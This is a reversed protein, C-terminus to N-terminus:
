NQVRRGLVQRARFELSEIRACALHLHLWNAISIAFKVSANSETIAFDRFNRTWPQISLLTSMRKGGAGALCVRIKRSISLLENPLASSRVSSRLIAFPFADRAGNTFVLDNSLRRVRQIRKM